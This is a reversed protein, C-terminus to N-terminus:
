PDLPLQQRLASFKAPQLRSTRRAQRAWVEGQTRGIESIRLRRERRAAITERVAALASRPSWAMLGAVLILLAFAWDAAAACHAIGNRASQSQRLTSRLAAAVAIRDTRHSM